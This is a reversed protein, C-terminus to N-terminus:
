DRKNLHMPSGPEYKNLRERLEICYATSENMRHIALAKSRINEQLAKQLQEIVDAAECRILHSSPSSGDRLRALLDNSNPLSNM